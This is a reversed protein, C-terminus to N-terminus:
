GGSLTIEDISGDERHSVHEAGEQRAVRRGATLADAQSDYAGGIKRSSGDRTNIWRGGRSSTHIGARQRMVAGLSTTVRSMQEWRSSKWFM